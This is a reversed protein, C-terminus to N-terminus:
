GAAARASALRLQLPTLPVREAEALLRGSTVKGGAVGAVFLAVLRNPEGGFFTVAFGPGDQEVVYGKLGAAAPDRVKKILDDTAVWAARDLDFLLRGRAGIARLKAAQDAESVAAPAPQATAPAALLAAAFPTLFAAIRTLANM